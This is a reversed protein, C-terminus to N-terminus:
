WFRLVDKVVVVAMLGLLFIFGVTNIKQELEQKLPSGKLKEILLFLIRGGDLGPFPLLNVVALNVSLMATFQLLFALGLSAAQGSMKAIGIPGTVDGAVSKHTFPSAILKGLFEFIMKTMNYTTTMGLKISEGLTHKVVKTKALAIGTAGEGAPPNQRPTIKIKITNEEKPHQVEFTIEQGAKDRIIKQLQKISIVTEMNTNKTQVSIINDGPQLGAKEAPSNPAVMTITVPIFNDTNSDNVIEPLGMWFALSFLIIALLFNMIVGAVLIKFRIWISKNSFNKDDQKEEESEVGNEGTIKVFGGLPLLNFSYITEERDKIEEEIEKNGFVWRRKGKKDKYTGILRPPFGFGFEEAGVGNRKATIFHGLEHVLVLVGLVLLFIFLTSM